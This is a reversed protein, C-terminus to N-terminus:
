IYFIEQTGFLRGVEIALKRITKLGRSKNRGRGM